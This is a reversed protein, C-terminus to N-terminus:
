ICESLDPAVYGEPKMIKGNEDKVFKGDVVKSMNSKHVIDWAQDFDLGLDYCLREISMRISPMPDSLDDWQDAWYLEHGLEVYMLDVLEKLLEKKEEEILFWTLTDEALYPPGSEGYIPQDAARKFEEVDKIMQKINM